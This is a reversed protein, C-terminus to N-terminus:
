RISVSWTGAPQFHTGYGLMTKVPNKAITDRSKFEVHVGLADGVVMGFLIDHALKKQMVM